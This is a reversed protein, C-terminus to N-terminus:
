YKEKVAFITGNKLSELHRPSEPIDPSSRSYREVAFTVVEYCSFMSSKLLIKIELAGQVRFYDFLFM